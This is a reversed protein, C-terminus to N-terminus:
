QGPVTFIPAWGYGYTTMSPPGGNVGPKFVQANVTGVNGVNFAANVQDGSNRLACYIAYEQARHVCIGSVSGSSNYDDEFWQNRPVWGVRCDGQVYIYCKTTEARGTSHTGTVLALALAFLIKAKM